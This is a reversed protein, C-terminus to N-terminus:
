PLKVAGIEALNALVNAKVKADSITYLYDGIYSARKVTLPSDFYYGSKLLDTRDDLHTIRGRLEFGKQITLKFVYAGQYTYEGQTYPPVGGPYKSRDIEALLIPLVLLNKSASFLLAKPDRLVQSDTGRDGIVAKAVEKPKSVDSVDFLSLKVGQYWSFDGQDSPVADKGIGILHNEDYPHLYDSYGPIKLQGLVKPAAPEKLDIVFLPDVKQFTVLYCRSGMFRASYISEGPALQELKGVTKLDKDLVYVNNSKGDSTAIRFYGQYEDMSYQNLVYGPVQGDAVHTITGDNIRIKHIGTGRNTLYIHEQSVFICSTAGQLFTEISPQQGPRKVNFGVIMTFFHYYDPLDSHYISTAEIKRTSNDVAIVPLAVYTKNAYTPRNIVAYVYDGIMRSGFYDGEVTINRDLNPKARNAIDYVLISTNGTYSGPYYRITIIPGYSSAGVFAVLKDENIFIGAVSGLLEVKSVVELDEPPYAKVIYVSKGSVIYIYKGDSKVLDAEDVGAVQINTTSYDPASGAETAGKMFFDMSTSTGTTQTRWASPTLVSQIRDFLSRPVDNPTKSLFDVLEGYSSFQSLVGGRLFYAGGVNWMAGGLASGFVLGLVVVAFLRRGGLRVSTVKM